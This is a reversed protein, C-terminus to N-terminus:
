SGFTLTAATSNVKVAGNDSGVVVRYQKGTDDETAGALVLSSATEGVLNSFKGTSSARSQWQYTATGSPAVTATVSFTAAGAVTTQDTPQATISVVANVDAAILDEADGAAGATNSIEVLCQSKYRTNGEQDTYSKVEWWGGSTIGKGKNAALTVETSDVFIITQPDYVLAAKSVTTTLGTGTAMSVAPATVYGAGPNTVTISQVIGGSVLATAVAQTGGDPPAAITVAVAAGNVYGTGGATVNIALIQGVDLNKPRAQTTDTKGFLSM